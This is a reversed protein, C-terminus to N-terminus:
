PTGNRAHWEKLAKKAVANLPPPNDLAALFIARDRDSLTTREWNNIVRDAEETMASIAFDSLTRGAYAAAREVRRKLRPPLRVNMRDTKAATARPKTTQTMPDGQLIIYAWFAYM